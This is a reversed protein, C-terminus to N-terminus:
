ATGNAEVSTNTEVAINLLDKNLVRINRVIEKLLQHAKKLEQHAERFLKHAEEVEESREGNELNLKADVLINIAQERKEKANKIHLNFEDIKAEIEATNKGEAELKDLFRNLKDDLHEAREIILGLKNEVFVANTIKILKKLSHWSERLNKAAEKVEEKTSNENLSDIKIKAELVLETSSNLNNLLKTKTENSLNSVEIKVKTKEALLLIRESAEEMYDRSKIKLDIRLENCKEEDSRCEKLEKKLDLFNDRRSKLIEKREKLEERIDKRQEKLKEIREKFQDRLEERREKLEERVEKVREHNLKAEIKANVRAEVSTDNLSVNRENARIIPLTGRGYEAFVAPVISVLLLFGLLIAMIKKM